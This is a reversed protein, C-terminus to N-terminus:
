AAKKPKQEVVTGDDKYRSRLDDLQAKLEKMMSANAPDDYISKMEHPDTQLDFLEWQNMDPRKAHSYYHILKYRETRIGYHRAVSHPGPFEYYHYYMRKRWDPIDNGLLMPRFSRGQM